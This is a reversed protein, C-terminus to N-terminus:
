DGTRFPQPAFGCGDCVISVPMLLVVPSHVGLTRSAKVNVIQEYKLCPLMLCREASILSPLRATRFCPSGVLM